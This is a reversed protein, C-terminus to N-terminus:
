GTSALLRDVLAGLDAVDHAVDVTHGAVRGAPLADEPDTVGSRVLAFPVGLEDAFAGDTEVRDGVMIADDARVMSRVVRAMAPHPKGAVEPATGTVVSVAAVLSGAGPSPGHTTPFTADTNTAVFRAGGGILEASRALKDFTFERDLGVVVADVGDPADDVSWVEVGRRELAEFVGHGGIAAVREGPVVLEAAALASSVVRGTADIGIRALAAEHAEITAVSNNTVYVLDGGARRWREISEVAGPIPRLALWVVGDLDCLLTTVDM